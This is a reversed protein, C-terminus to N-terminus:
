ENGKVCFKGCKPWMVDGKISGVKKILRKILSAEGIKIDTPTAWVNEAVLFIGNGAILLICFCTTQLPQGRHGMLYFQSNDFGAAINIHRRNKLIVWLSHKWHLRLSYFITLLITFHLFRKPSFIM